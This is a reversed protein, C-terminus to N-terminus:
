ASREEIAPVHREDPGTYVATPRIIKGSGRQEIAHAAWGATRAIVFLPTFLATPIGLMHYAPAAYWDLNPFLGKERLMVSELREAIEFLRPNGGTQGLRQAITKIVASRPDVRTYVPHGFGIVVEHEGLRRVIDNEAQDATDYRAIVDMAVENAGGHKPGKLAGIGACICSYLDAGTSAVVRNAFTSANFEHEAYLILSQDLARIHEPSAPQGRLLHLFQGAISADSTATDIRRGHHSFHYWYLLLSPLAALLRDAIDRAGATGHEDKEPLVCGLTSVGSRLADMPHTAAPIHELTVLVEHPLGRAEVLRQRYQSLAAEDPLRGHILLHGVEEFACGQALELIPYGRYHLNDGNRGVTCIATEGAAIGSLAVSKKPPPSSPAEM